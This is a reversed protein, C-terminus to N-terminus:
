RAKAQKSKLCLPAIYSDEGQAPTSYIICPKSISNGIIQLLSVLDSIQEEEEIEALAATTRFRKEQSLKYNAFLAYLLNFFNDNADM